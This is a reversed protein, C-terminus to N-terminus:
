LKISEESSATYDGTVCLLLCLWMKESSAILNILLCSINNVDNGDSQPATQNGSM